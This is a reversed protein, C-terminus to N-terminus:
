GLGESNKYLVFSILIGAMFGRLLLPLLEFFILLYAGGLYFFGLEVELVLLVLSLVSWFAVFHIPYRKGNTLKNFGHAALLVSFVFLVLILWDPVPFILGVNVTVVFAVVISCLVFVLQKFSFM